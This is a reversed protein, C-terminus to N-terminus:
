FSIKSPPIVGKVIYNNWFDTEAKELVKLSKKVSEDKRMITYYRTETKILKHDAGFFRLKAVLKAGVFDNMVLLYHCVQIFYNQPISNTWNELDDRKSMIDHTKIELVYKEKTTKDTLIGDLSATMFPKDIRVYMEYNEPKHVDFQKEFDIAFQQRILDECRNGYQMSENTEDTKKIGPLKAALYIDLTTMYPNCGVIASASSGGIRRGLLWKERSDFNLREYLVKKKM